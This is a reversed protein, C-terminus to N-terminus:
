LGSWFLKTFACRVHDRDLVVLLNGIIGCTDERLLETLISRLLRHHDVDKPGKKESKRGMQM